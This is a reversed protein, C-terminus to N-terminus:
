RAPSQHMRLRINRKRHVDYGAEPSVYERIQHSVERSDKRTAATIKDRIPEYAWADTVRGNKEIMVKVSDGIIGPVIEYWNTRLIDNLHRSYNEASDTSFTILSGPGVEIGGDQRRGTIMQPTTVSLHEYAMNFVQAGKILQHLQLAFGYQTSTPPPLNELQRGATEDTEITFHYVTHADPEFQFVKSNENCSVLYLSLLCIVLYRQLIYPMATYVCFFPYDMVLVFSLKAAM